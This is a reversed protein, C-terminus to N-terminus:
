KNINWLSLKTICYWLYKFSSASHMKLSMAHEWCSLYGSCEQIMQPMCPLTLHRETWLCVSACPFIYSKRRGLSVCNWMHLIIWKQQLWFMAEMAVLFFSNSIALPNESFVFRLFALLLVRRLCWEYGEFPQNYIHVNKLHSCIFEKMKLLWKIKTLTITSGFVIGPVSLWDKATYQAFVCKNIVRKNM